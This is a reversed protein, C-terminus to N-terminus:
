ERIVRFGKLESKVEAAGSMGDVYDSAGFGYTKGESGYYEAVNGGLDYVKAEGIKTAKYKGVVKLMHSAKNGIKAQLAMADKPTLEYGAWRNLTNGKAAIAQAKKHFDKAEKENPLRYKKGSKESLWNTYAMAQQASVLAPYNSRAAAHKFNKDFAAFQANTIEFCSIAISDKKIAEMEPMLVDKQMVGFNGEYKPIERELLMALPSGEKLAEDKEEKKDFLYEDIWALEEEMKRMQHTIKRLGHPQGPFWLFRVATQDAQQLARYYEWGQDRPVARDESGHFIITPTKVKELEFLPSLRIYNENYTKGNMDDWPAGGFYHQDFQVGFRCTGYDSTWNVDGAGAAAVKFMDPYRVTLMTALIAGNSWGMVGMQDTDIYGKGKLYEIGKTIDELEPDYYNGAISEVFELGHNSSGHYNPKLVFAGRQALINPYTSWRESWRDVTAASPGGHISIMLPYQKGEEYNEPYYLLGTVEEGKWGNWKIAESKTISKKSLGGNLKVLEKDSTFRVSVDKRLDAIYYKPLKSSTSYNYIIKQDDKSIANISLHETKEGLDLEKKRWGEAKAYYAWKRTTGNALSVLLDNEIVRFGGEMGWEWNLDIKKHTKSALDYYHVQGIGAGNWKPDNTLSSAFYFGKNDKTFQFSYPSHVDMLIQTRTGTELNHLYHKPKPNADSSYHKSQTTSYALYKGDKSIAYSNVPFDNNTIRKIKKNQTDFAYIKSITWHEEDEVVIVNDKKKKLEQEYLSKGDNSTFFFISDNQWQVNSIGNKFEHVKQPEGGYISLSWLKNGKDRSSRFYITESDASFFAGFDSEDANTLRITKFKGDKEVDLRTLYLDSVFRDKDKVARRKSWVVMENNPAIVASGLYETNIIDKPTWRDPKPIEKQAIAILTTLFTLCLLLSIQKM